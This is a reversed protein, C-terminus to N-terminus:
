FSHCLPMGLKQRDRGKIRVNRMCENMQFIYGIYTAVWPVRESSIGTWCHRYLYSKLLKCFLPTSSNQIHLPLSNFISVTTAGTQLEHYPVSLDNTADALATLIDQCKIKNNGSKVALASTERGPCKGQCTWPRESNAWTAKIYYPSSLNCSECVHHHHRITTV